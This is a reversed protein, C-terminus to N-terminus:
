GSGAGTEAPAAQDTVTRRAPYLRYVIAAVILLVAAAVWSALTMGRDFAATAVGHLRDAAEASLEGGASLAGGISDSAAEAAAPPLDGLRPSIGQRYGVSLLSGLLAIGIAGGAERTMDNLASGVGSKHPPLSSVIAHTATPMTVALGIGLVVLGVAASWYPSAAGLTGMTAMGAASIVLGASITVRTGSRAIVAPIRPAILLVIMSVPLVRVGAALPTHGQAFQFYQTLIFIIGYLAFFTAVASVAGLTFVRNGFYAPDLMPFRTRREWRAYAWFGVVALGFGGLVWPDRWGLEPGEIIGYLLCGLAVISLASGVADLPRQAEDRSTPVIWAVLGLVVGAVPVTFLFISGWWFYRLLVGGIVPGVLGSLGAAASWAAVAKARESAPFIVAAISLTAPMVLAAGVGMIARYGIVQGATTSYAALASAMGFVVIGALLVGKRGRRDGLAGLPLLLCAFTLIHADTMWQLDSGSAGLATQMTPLAINMSGLNSFVMVMSSCLVALILWRRPHPEISEGAPHDRMGPANYPAQPHAGTSSLGTALGDPAATPLPSGRARRPM